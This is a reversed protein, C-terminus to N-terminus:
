SKEDDTKRLDAGCVPCITRRRNHYAYRCRKKCFDQDHRKPLFTERCFKCPKPPLNAAM